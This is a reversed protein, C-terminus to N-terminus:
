GEVLSFTISACCAHKWSIKRRVVLLDYASFLFSMTLTLWLVAAVMSDHKSMMKAMFLSVWGPLLAHHLHASRAGNKRPVSFFRGNELDQVDGFRQVRCWKCERFIEARNLCKPMIKHITKKNWIALCTPNWPNIDVREDVRLLLAEPEKSTTTM